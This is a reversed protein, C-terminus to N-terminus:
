TSLMESFPTRSFNVGTILAAALRGGAPAEGPVADGAGAGEATGEGAGDGGGPPRPYGAPPM